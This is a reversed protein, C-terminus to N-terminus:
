PIPRSHTERFFQRKIGARWYVLRENVEQISKIKKNIKLNWRDVLGIVSLRLNTVELDSDTEQFGYLRKHEANFLEFVTTHILQEKDYAYIEVPLDFAQSPYRVDFILKFEHKQVIKGEGAIWESAEKELETLAM